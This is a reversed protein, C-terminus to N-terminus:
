CNTEKGIFIYSRWKAIVNLVNYTNTNIKQRDTEFCKWIDEIMIWIFDLLFFLYVTNNYLSSYKKGLREQHVPWWMEWKM